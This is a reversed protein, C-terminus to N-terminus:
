LEDAAVIRYLWYLETLAIGLSQYDDPDGGEMLVEAQMQELQRIVDLLRESKM